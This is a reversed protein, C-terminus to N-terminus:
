ESAGRGRWFVPSRGVDWHVHKQYLGVGGAGYTRVMSAYTPLDVGKLKGDAATGKMHTSGPAGGVIANTSPTRFASTLHTYTSKRETREYWQQTAFIIDFVGPAMQVARGERVDLCAASLALYDDMQFEGDRWYVYERLSQEPTLVKIARPQSWFVPDLGPVSALSRRPLVGYCSALLVPVTRLFGRRSNFASFSDSIVSANM